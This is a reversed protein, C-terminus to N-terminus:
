NRSRRKQEEIGGEDECEETDLARSKGRELQPLEHRLLDTSVPDVVADLLEAPEQVRRGRGATLGGRGAQLLRVDQLLSHPEQLPARQGTHGGAVRLTEGLTQLFGQAVQREVRGQLGCLPLLDLAEVHQLSRRQLPM